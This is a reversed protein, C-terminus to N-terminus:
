RCQEFSNRLRIIPPFGRRTRVQIDREGGGVSVLTVDKLEKDRTANWHQDVSDYFARTEWDMVLVPSHPTALTIVTSIKRSDFDERSFLSKALM